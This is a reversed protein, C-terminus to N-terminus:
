FGKVRTNDITYTGASPSVSAGLTSYQLKACFAGGAHTDIYNSHVITNAVRNLKNDKDNVGNYLVTPNVIVPHEKLGYLHYGANCYFQGRVCHGANLDLRYRGSVLYTRGGYNYNYYGSSGVCHYRNDFCTYRGDWSVGHTKCYLGADSYCVGNHGYYPTAYYPAVPMRKGSCSPNVYEYKKCKSGVDTTGSPCVNIIKTKTVTKYIPKRCWYYYSTYGSPCYYELKYKLCFGSPSHPLVVSCNSGGTQEYGSPCKDECYMIKKCLNGSIPFFGDPCGYRKIERRCKNGVRTTGSPCYYETKIGDKGCAPYGRAGSYKCQGNSVYLFDRSYQGSPCVIKCKVCTHNPLLSWGEGNSCYYHLTYDYNSACCDSCPFPGYKYHTGAPCTKYSTEEDVLSYTNSGTKITRYYCGIPMKCKYDKRSNAPRTETVVRGAGMIYFVSRTRTRLNEYKYRPPDFSMYRKYAHITKTVIKRPITKELIKKVRQHEYIYKDFVQQAYSQVKKIKNVYVVRRCKDMSPIYVYGSPCASSTYAECRKKVPNYTAGNQCQIPTVDNAVGVTTKAWYSKILRIPRNDLFSGTVPDFYAYQNYEVLKWQGGDKYMLEYYNGSGFYASSLWLNKATGLPQMGVYADFGKSLANVKVNALAMLSYPYLIKLTGNDIRQTWMEMPSNLFYEKQKQATQSSQLRTDIQITNNSLVSLSMPAGRYNSFDTNVGYYNKLAALSAPNEGREMAYRNALESAVKTKEIVSQTKVTDGVVAYALTAAIGIGTATLVVKKM